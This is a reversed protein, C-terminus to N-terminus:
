TITKDNDEFVKSVSWRLCGTTSAPLSNGTASATEPPQPERLGPFNGCVRQAREGGIGLSNLLSVLSYEANEAGYRHSM